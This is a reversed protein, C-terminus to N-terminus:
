DSPIPRPKWKTVYPQRINLADLTLWCEEICHELGAKTLKLFQEPRPLRVEIHPEIQGNNSFRERTLNYILDDKIAQQVSQDKDTKEGQNGFGGLNYSIKTYIEEANFEAINGDGMVYLACLFQEGHRRREEKNMFHS